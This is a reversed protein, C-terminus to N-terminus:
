HCCRRRGRVLHCLLVRDPKGFGGLVETVLNNRDTSKELASRVASDLFIPAHNQNFFVGFIRPLTATVIKSEEM